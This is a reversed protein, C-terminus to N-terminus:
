SGACPFCLSSMGPCTDGCTACLCSQLCPCRNLSGSAQTDMDSYSSDLTFDQWPVGELARRLGRSVASLRAVTRLWPVAGAYEVLDLLDIDALFYLHEAATEAVRQWLEAPLSSWDPQQPMIDAAWTVTRHVGQPEPQLPQM